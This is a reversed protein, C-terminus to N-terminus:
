FGSAEILNHLQLRYINNEWLVAIKDAYTAVHSYEIEMDGNTLLVQRSKGNRLDCVTVERGSYSGFFAAYHGGVSIASAGTVPSKEVVVEAQDGIVCALYFGTYPYVWISDRQDVTMAYLDFINLGSAQNFDYTMEGCDSYRRLGVGGSQDFYGIWIQNKRDVIVQEIADGVNFEVLKEFSETLVQANHSNGRSRSEVTLWRGDNFRQVVPYVYGEASELVRTGVDWKFYEVTLRRKDDVGALILEGCADFTLSVFAQSLEESTPAYHPPEFVKVTM